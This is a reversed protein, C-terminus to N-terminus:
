DLAIAFARWEPKGARWAQGDGADRTLAQLDPLDFSRLEVHLQTPTLELHLWGHPYEMVAPAIIFPIDRGGVAVSQVDFRHAHGQFVARVNDYRAMVALVRDTNQVAFFDVWMQEGSWPHLLQHLSVIVPREGSTALADDFRELEAASVWGYIPDDPMAAAIQADSHGQANLLVLRAYPTDITLGMGRELGWKEEAYRWDGGGPPCDHNGPLGYVPSSLQTLASHTEDVAQYFQAPPIEFYGGGCTFDGLHLVIDPDADAMEEVLHALLRKSEGLPQINGGGGIQNGGGPWYHTDTCLGIRVRDSSKPTILYPETHITPM